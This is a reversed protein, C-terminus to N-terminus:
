NSPIVNSCIEPLGNRQVTVYANVHVVRDKILPGPSEILVAPRDCDKEMNARSSYVFM